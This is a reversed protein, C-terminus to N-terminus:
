KRTNELNDRFVKMIKLFVEQGTQPITLLGLLQRVWQSILRSAKVHLEMKM